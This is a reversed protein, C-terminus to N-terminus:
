RAKKITGRPLKGDHAELWEIVEEEVSEKEMGIGYTRLTEIQETYNQYKKLFRM